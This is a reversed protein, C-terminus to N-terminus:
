VEVVLNPDFPDAVIEGRYGRPNTMVKTENCTYCLAEHTHGHIWLEAPYEIDYFLEHCDSTFSANLYDEPALRYRPHISGLSPGHHTIAVMPGVFPVSLEKKLYARSLMHEAYADDPAFGHILGFDAMSNMAKLKEMPNNKFYDTWLTAGVFKVGNYVESDRNMFRINHCDWKKLYTRILDDGSFKKAHDTYSAGHPRGYMSKYYEHNGPVYYTRGFSGNVRKFFDEVHSSHHMGSAVCIDGALICVDASPFPEKYNRGELHIDSIPFIRM